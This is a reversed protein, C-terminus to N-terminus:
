DHVVYQVYLNMKGATLNAVAITATINCATTVAKFASAAGTSQGEVLAGAASGTMDTATKLDNAAACSFAMTSSTGVLQTVVYIWSRIVTSKAPLAVGLNFAAQTGGQVAFDYTAVAIRQANLQSTTPAALMSELVKGAGIATVGTNGITIDGSMAVDRAAGSSNGVMIHGSVLDIFNPTDLLTGLQVNWAPGSARNLVYVQSDTLAFASAPVVLLLLWLIGKKM